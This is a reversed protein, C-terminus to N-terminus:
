RRFEPSLLRRFVIQSFLQAFTKFRGNAACLSMDALPWLRVNRRTPAIDAKGGFASM